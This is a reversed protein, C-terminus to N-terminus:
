HGCFTDVGLVHVGFDRVVDGLPEVCLHSVCFARLHLIHLISVSFSQQNCSDECALTKTAQKVSAVGKRKSKENKNARQVNRLEVSLLQLSVYRGLQPLLNQLSLSGHNM